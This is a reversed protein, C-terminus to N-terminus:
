TRQAERADVLLARHLMPHIQVKTGADVLAMSMVPTDQHSWYYRESSRNKLGVAGTRYLESLAIRLIDANDIKNSMNLASLAATCVPDLTAGSISCVGMLFDEWQKGVLLESAEFIHRRRALLDLAAGLSPLAAKWEAVLADRQKNSYIGEADRINQATVERREVAQELCINVFSIIDRPRLLTRRVMYNFPSVTGVNHSFIDYFHVASNTYQRRFMLSIRKDVIEFLQSDNWKVRAFYDEYKDRQFGIDATERVVREYVDIRIACYVRCSEITRFIRVAEVLGRILKFRVGEDVWNEDIQDIVMITRKQYKQKDVFDSLLNIVESIEALQQPSIIQRLRREFQTKRDKSLTSAYGARTSFKEIEVGFDANVKEELSESLERVTEDISIWFRDQWRELYQIARQRKPDKRVFDRVHDVLSKSDKSNEVEFHSQIFTTLLVHKWLYQFFLHLPADMSDLFAFIDSNAVYTMAMDYVNISAPREASRQLIRILATKGSGTRGLIFNRHHQQGVLDAIVPNSVFAEFLFADDNEASNSGINSGANIIIKNQAM